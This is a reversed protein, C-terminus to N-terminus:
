IAQLCRAHTRDRIGIYIGDATRSFQVTLRDGVAILNVGMFDLKLPQLERLRSAIARLARRRDRGMAVETSSQFRIITSM